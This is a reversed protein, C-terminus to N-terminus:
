IAREAVAVSMGEDEDVVEVTVYDGAPLNHDAADEHLACHRTSVTITGGNSIADRANAVINLLAMEFQNAAVGVRPLDPALDLRLVARGDTSSEMLEAFNGVM